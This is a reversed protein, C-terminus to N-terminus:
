FFIYFMGVASLHWTSGKKSAIGKQFTGMYILKIFPEWGGAQGKSIGKQKGEKRAPNPTPSM